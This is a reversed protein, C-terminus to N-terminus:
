SDPSVDRCLTLVLMEDVIELELKDGMRLGMASIVQPPIEVILDGSGDGADHCVATLLGQNDM